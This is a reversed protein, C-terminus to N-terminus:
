SLREGEKHLRKLDNRMYSMFWPLVVQYDALEPRWLKEWKLTMWGNYQNGGLGNYFDLLPVEGTGPLVDDYGTKHRMIDAIYLQKTMGQAEQLVTVISENQILCHDTSLLLQLQPHNIEKILHGCQLANLQNYHNQILLTVNAAVAEDLCSSIEAMLYAIWSDAPLEKPMAPLPLRVLEAGMHEALTIHRLIGDRISGQGPYALLSSLKIGENHLAHKIEIVQERSSFVTLDGRNESVRLDIGQFGYHRALSIAKLASIDPTALTTFSLKM